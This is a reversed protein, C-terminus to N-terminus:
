TPFRYELECVSHVGPPVPDELLVHFQVFGPSLPSIHLGKVCVNEFQSRVFEDVSQAHENLFHSLGVSLRVCWVAYEVQSQSYLYHEDCKVYAYLSVAHHFYIM